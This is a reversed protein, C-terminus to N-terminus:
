GRKNPVLLVVAVWIALILAINSLFNLMKGGAM